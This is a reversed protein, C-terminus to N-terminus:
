AILFRIQMQRVINLMGIREPAYHIDVNIGSIRQMMKALTNITISNGSGINFVDSKVDSMAAIYNARAVDDANLFDRTQSGDGFM